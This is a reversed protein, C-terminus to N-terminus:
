PESSMEMRLARIKSDLYVAATAAKEESEKVRRITDTRGMELLSAIDAVWSRFSVRLEDIEARMGAQARRAADTEAKDGASRAAGAREAQHLEAQIRQHRDALEASQTELQGTLEEFRAQIEQAVQDATDFLSEGKTKLVNLVADQTELQAQLSEGVREQLKAYTGEVERQWRRISEEVSEEVQRRGRKARAALIGVADELLETQGGSSALNRRPPVEPGTRREVALWAARQGDMAAGIAELADEIRTRMVSLEAHVAQDREDRRDMLREVQDELTAIRMELHARAQVDNIEELTRAISLVSKREEAELQRDASAARSKVWELTSRQSRLATSLAVEPAPESM